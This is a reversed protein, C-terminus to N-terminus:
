DFAGTEINGMLGNEQEQEKKYLIELTKLQEVVDSVSNLEAM